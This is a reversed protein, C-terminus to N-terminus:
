SNGDYQMQYIAGAADDTMYIDGDISLTFDFPRGLHDGPEDSQRFGVVFEQPNLNAINGSEADIELSFVGFGSQIGDEQVGGHLVYVYRMGLDDTTIFEGSTINGQPETTYIPQLVDDCADEDGFDPDVLEGSHCRPWGADDGNSIAYVNEPADGELQPRGQATAWIAGTAPNAALGLVQYLGRAFTRENSGDLNFVLVTARRSDSEECAGCSAGVSVYIEDEHILLAHFNSEVENANRGTPLDEIIIEETLVNLEDDLQFRAVRSAEAVYLWDDHFALGSPVSLGEAVVIPDDAIRDDNEDQLALVRGAGRESVFIVDQAPHAVLYRPAALNTAFVTLRYDEPVEIDPVTEGLNLAYQDPLAGAAVLYFGFAAAVLAVVGLGYAQRRMKRSDASQVETMNIYISVRSTRFKVFTSGNDWLM